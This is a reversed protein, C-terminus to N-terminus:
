RKFQDMSGPQLSNKDLKEDIHFIHYDLATLLEIIAMLMALIAPILFLSAGLERLLVGRHMKEVELLCIAYSAGDLYLSFNLTCHKGAAKSLVYLTLHLLLFFVTLLGYVFTPSNWDIMM